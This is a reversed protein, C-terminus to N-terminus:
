ASPTASAWANLVHDALNDLMQRTAGAKAQVAMGQAITMVFAALIACDAAPALDGERRASELRRRLARESADRRRILERRVPEAEDSCALAGNLGLCGPHAANLTHLNACGRLIREVVRRSTPELLAERMFGMYQVEYLDLVRHFLAEKNGFASYLGPRAVGTAKTLDEFSAGEYGKQWFVSLAAALAEDTDFERHRGM